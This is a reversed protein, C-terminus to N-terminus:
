YGLIFECVNKLEVRMKEFNGKEFNAKAKNIYKAERDKAGDCGALLLFSFGLFLVSIKKVLMKGRMTTM